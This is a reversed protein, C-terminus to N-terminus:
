RALRKERLEQNMRRGKRLSQERFAFKLSSHPGPRPWYILDPNSNAKELSHQGTQNLWYTHRPHRCEGLDKYVWISVTADKRIRDVWPRLHFETGCLVCEGDYSRDWFVKSRYRFLNNHTGVLARVALAYSNDEPGRMQRYAFIDSHLHSCLSPPMCSLIDEPDNRWPVAIRMYEEVLLSPRDKTVTAQRSHFKIPDDETCAVRSFNASELPTGWSSGLENRDMILQVQAFYLSNPDTAPTLGALLKPLPDARSCPRLKEAQYAQQLPALKHLTLCPFCWRHGPYDRMLNRLFLTLERQRKGGQHLSIWYQKGLASYSRRCTFSLSVAAHLPTLSGIAQIVEVPLREFHSPM